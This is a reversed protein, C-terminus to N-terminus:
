GIVYELKNSLKQHDMKIAKQGRRQSNKLFKRVLPIETMINRDLLEKFFTRRLFGMSSGLRVYEHLLLETNIPSGGGLITIGGFGYKKGNLAKCILEVTGDQLSSWICTKKKEIMLDNLGIYAYDWNLKALATIDKVLDLTEIQIITKTRNDIYQLFNKVELASRAMPLMIIRAGHAIACDIESCTVDNFANVRVTVPISLNAALKEIDAPTDKNIELDHNSQRARKGTYEWDVIISDIGAKEAMLAVTLDTTFLFFKM